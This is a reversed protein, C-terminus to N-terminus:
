RWYVVTATLNKVFLDLTGDLDDEDGRRARSSYIYIDDLDASDAKLATEAAELVACLRNNDDDFFEIRVIATRIGIGGDLENEYDERTVRFIAFPPDTDGVQAATPYGRGRLAEITDLRSVIFEEINKM